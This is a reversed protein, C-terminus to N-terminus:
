GNGESGEAAVDEVSSQAFEVVRTLQDLSLGRLVDEPVSPFVNSILRVMLEIQEHLPANNGEMKEALRLNEVMAGVTLDVMEYSKGKITLVKSVPPQVEDLNLYKTKAM